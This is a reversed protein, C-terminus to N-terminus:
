QLPGVVLVELFALPQSSGQPGALCSSCHLHSAPPFWILGVILLTVVM